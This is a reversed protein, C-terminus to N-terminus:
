IAMLLCSSQCVTCDSRENSSLPKCVFKVLFTFHLCHEEGKRDQDRARKLLRSVKLGKKFKLM